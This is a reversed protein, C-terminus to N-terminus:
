PDLWASLNETNAQELQVVSLVTGSLLEHLVYLKPGHGDPQLGDVEVLLQGYKEVTETLKEHNMVEKGLLLAAM